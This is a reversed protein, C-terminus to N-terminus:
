NGRCAGGAKGVSLDVTDGIAYVNEAGRVRLTEHDTPLSGEGDATESVGSERM